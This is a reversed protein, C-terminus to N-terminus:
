WEGGILSHGERDARGGRKRKGGGIGERGAM